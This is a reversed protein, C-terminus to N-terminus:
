FLFSMGPRNCVNEFALDLERRHVHRGGCWTQIGYSLINDSTNCTLFYDLKLRVQSRSHLDRDNSQFHHYLGKTPLVIKVVFKIPM